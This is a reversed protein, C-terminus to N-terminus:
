EAAGVKEIMFDCKYKHNRVYVKNPSDSRVGFYRLADGIVEEVNDIVYKGPYGNYVLTDTSENYYLVYSHGYTHDFQFQTYSILHIDDEDVDDALYACYPHCEDCVICERCPCEVEVEEDIKVKLNEVADRIREHLSLVEERTHCVQSRVEWLTDELESLKGLVYITCGFMIITLGTMVATCVIDFTDM